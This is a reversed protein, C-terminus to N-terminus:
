YCFPNQEIVQQNLLFDSPSDLDFRLKGAGCSDQLIDLALRTNKVIQRRQADDLVFNNEIYRYIEGKDQLDQHLHLLKAYTKASIHRLKQLMKTKKTYNVYPVRGGADNDNLYTRQILQPSYQAIDAPAAYRHMQTRKFKGTQWRKQINGNEVWYWAWRYDINGIRDQQSFIFDLITIETIERMWYLMQFDSVEGTAHRVKSNRFAKRKGEKIAELLPKDSKLASYPATKQFDENQATGWRSRIGNVEVGYRTGKGKILVGYICHQDPTFLENTPRYTSPTKEATYLRDWGAAIMGRHTKSRGARSVRNRHERRDMERYIATPVRITTDFYRSFHYYLLSSTSFTGSTNHQNMSQKFKALKDVKDAVIKNLCHNKEFIRRNIGTESVDRVMTAPSTSWTKPCLAIHNSYFNIGLFKKEKQKDSSKYKGHPIKDLAIAQENVGNPSTYTVYTDGEQIAIAQQNEIQVITEQTAIVPINVAQTSVM